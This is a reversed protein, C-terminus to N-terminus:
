RGLSEYSKLVQEATREWTFSVARAAGAEIAQDDRHDLMEQARAQFADLDGDTVLPLADGCTEPLATNAYAVVALRQAAAELVPLGFGEARSPFLLLRAAAYASALEADPLVGPLELRDAVGHTAAMARLRPEHRQNPGTIVLRLPEGLRALTAIAHEPRKRWDCEGVMLVFSAFRRKLAEVGDAPAPRMFTEGVGPYVVSARGPEVHLRELIVARTHASNCLLRDARRLLRVQLAWRARQRLYSRHRVTWPILDHVSVLTPVPSRWPM